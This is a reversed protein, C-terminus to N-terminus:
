RAVVDIVTPGSREMAQALATELLPASEVRVGVAGFAQAYAVFDPNVLDDDVSRAYAATRTARIAGFSRNNWIVIPLSLQHRVATALEESTFLFGGDGCIATVPAGPNALRAGIAAPVAYGLTGYGRPFLFRRPRYAAMREVAAYSLTNMDHVVFADRSLARDLATVCELAFNSWRRPEAHAQARLRAVEAPKAPDVQRTPLVRLWERLVTVVDGHVGTATRPQADADVNVKIVNAPLPFPAEGLDTTSWETGLLVLPDARAVLQRAVDSKLWAGLAMPHTEPLVGKGAATSLAVAGLREVFSTVEDAADGCGGGVVVVPQGGALLEIPASSGPEQTSDFLSSGHVFASPRVPQGEVRADLYEIPVEVAVPGPRGEGARRYALAIASPLEAPSGVTVADKFLGSIIAHQDKLDHLRRGTVEPEQSYGTVVCVMPVSDSYAEAIATAANTLGPGTILFCVGVKGSSRAYGDAMFAAGQEHRTVVSRVEPYDILADYLGQNHVGPIGFVVEVGSRVLSKVALGAATSTHRTAQASASGSM